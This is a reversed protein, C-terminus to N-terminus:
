FVRYGRGALLGTRENFVAVSEMGYPILDKYMKGVKYSTWGFEKMVSFRNICFDNINWALVYLFMKEHDNLESYDIVGKNTFSSSTEEDWEAYFPNEKIRSKLDEITYRVISM